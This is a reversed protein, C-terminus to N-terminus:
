HRPRRRHLLAAGIAAALTLASIGFLILYDPYGRYQFAIRHTGAPLVVGVVAPAVTDTSEVQGDVSATWGPDFSASLVAIGPRRLSVTAAVRGQDVDDAEATVTGDFPKSAASTPGRATASGDGLVVRVYEGEQALRAGLMAATRRGLNTRNATIQGLITGVHVYGSSGTSWLWYPGSRVMM